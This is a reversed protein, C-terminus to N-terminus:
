ARVVLQKPDEGPLSRWGCLNRSRSYSYNIQASRDYGTEVSAHFDLGAHIGASRTWTVAATNNSHSTSGAIQGVCFRSPTSPVSAPKEVHAGGAYGNVHQMYTGSTSCRYKGFHFETRYWVSKRAGFTPWAEGFSASWSYTGDASFSGNSGSASVGVGITSSQGRTYTFQQSAHTTPVYTEGVTAWHKGMSKLYSWNGFDCLPLGDPKSTLNVVPGSGSLYTNGANKTVAVPFTDGASSTDAELNVVGYSAEPMLKALPLSVSYRGDADTTTTGVLVWPVEQGPKLAQMISQDPWAHVVVKVGADAKGSSTTVTGMMPIAAPRAAAQAPSTAALPVTIAAIALLQVAFRAYKM